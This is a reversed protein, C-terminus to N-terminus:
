HPFSPFQFCHVAAACSAVEKMLRGPNDIQKKAPSIKCHAYLLIHDGIRLFYVDSTAIWKSNNTIIIIDILLKPRSLKISLV